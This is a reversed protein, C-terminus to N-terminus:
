DPRPENKSVVWHVVRAILTAVPLALLTRVRLRSAIASAPSVAPATQDPSVTTQGPEKAQASASNMADGASSLPRLLGRKPQVERLRASDLGADGPRGRSKRGAALQAM